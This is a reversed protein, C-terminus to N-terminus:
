MARSPCTSLSHSSVEGVLAEVNQVWGRGVLEDEPGELALYCALGYLKTAADATGGGLGLRCLQDLVHLREWAVDGAVSVALALNHHGDQGARALPRVLHNGDDVNVARGQAAEVLDVLSIEFLERVQQGSAAIPSFGPEVCMHLREPQGSAYEISLEAHM